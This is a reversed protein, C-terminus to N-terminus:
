AAIRSASRARGAAQAVRGEAGGRRAPRQDDRRRDSGSRRGPARRAQGDARRLRPRADAAARRRRRQPRPAGARRRRELARRARQGSAGHATHRDARRGPLAGLAYVVMKRIGADADPAQYLPILQPSSPRTARRASRGSSASAPRATPITWRAAHPRRGRRGAAAPRAARDRAGSLPPGAPRGKSEEFRRSSRRARAHSRRPGEPRGDAAVVRVRGALTSRVRRQPDRRPLGAASRDDALLSRFGVYVAVTVAVVILPILFFQVALAPAAALPNRTASEREVLKDM